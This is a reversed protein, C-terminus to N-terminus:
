ILPSRILLFALIVKKGQKEKVEKLLAVVFYMMKWYVPTALLLPSDLSSGLWPQLSESGNDEPQFETINFTHGRDVAFNCRLEVHSVM